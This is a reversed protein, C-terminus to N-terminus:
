QPVGWVVSLNDPENTSIIVNTRLSAGAAGTAGKGSACSTGQLGREGEFGNIGVPGRLGVEGRPGECGEPGRPGQPGDKGDKGFAGTDGIEGKPGPCGTDGEDGDDGEYGDFGNRGPDGRPGTPGVGFDSQTLFGDITFIEGNARVFVMSGQHFSVEVVRKNNVLETNTYTLSNTQTDRIVKKGEHGYSRLVKMDPETLSGTAKRKNTFITQGIPVTKSDGSRAASLRDSQTIGAM